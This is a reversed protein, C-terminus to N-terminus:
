SWSWRAPARRCATRRSSAPHLEGAHGVLTDGVHLAACRGPHWPEHRDARVQLEVGAERAVARAAEVADAWSAPRGKGWWGSREFEGALVVAVRRPQAPLANEISALEDETPRRDVGLVPAREPADASPRYVLGTEFLAVDGFGRGVNRVLTKLLGPLLTTRM